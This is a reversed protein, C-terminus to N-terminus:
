AEHPAPLAPKRAILFAQAGVQTLQRIHERCDACRELHAVAGARERGPLVGLALEAGIERLKDCMVDNPM